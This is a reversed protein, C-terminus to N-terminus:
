LIVVLSVSIYCSSLFDAYTVYIWYMFSYRAISLCHALCHSPFSRLYHDPTLISCIFYSPVHFLYNHLPCVSIELSQHMPIFLFTPSMSLTPPECSVYLQLSDNCIPPVMPKQPYIYITINSYSSQTKSTVHTM